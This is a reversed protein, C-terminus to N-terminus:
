YVLLLHEKIGILLFGRNIEEKLNLKALEGSYCEIINNNFILFFLIFLVLRIKKAIKM